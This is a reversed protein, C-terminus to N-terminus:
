SGRALRELFAQVECPAVFMAACYASQNEGAVCSVRRSRAPALRLEAYPASSAADIAICVTNQASARSNTRVQAADHPPVILGTRPITRTVPRAESGVTRDNVPGSGAIEFRDIVFRQGSERTRRRVRARLGVFAIRSSRLDVQHQLTGDHKRPLAFSATRAAAHCSPM